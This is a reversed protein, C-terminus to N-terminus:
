PGPFGPANRGSGMRMRDERMRNEMDRAFNENAKRVDEMQRRLQATSDDNARSPMSPFRQEWPTQSASPFDSPSSGFQNRNRWGASGLFILMVFTISGVVAGGIAGWSNQVRQCEAPTGYRGSSWAWENGKAGFWIHLAGVYVVWIILIYPAASPPILVFGSTGTAIWYNILRLLLLIPWPALIWFTCYARHNIGWIWTLFFAGWNFRNIVASEQAPTYGSIPQAYPGQPGAQVIPPLAPGRPPAGYGPEKFQVTAARVAVIPTPTGLPPPPAGAPLILGPLLSAPGRVGDSIREIVTEPLVRGEAAWHNLLKLDAPGFKSGDPRIVNFEM